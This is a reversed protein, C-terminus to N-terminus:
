PADGGDASSEDAAAKALAEADEKEKQLRAQRAENRQEPSRPQWAMQVVFSYLNASFTTENDALRKDSRDNVGGRM